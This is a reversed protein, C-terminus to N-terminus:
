YIHPPPQCAIKDGGERKWRKGWSGMEGEGRKRTKGGLRCSTGGGNGQNKGLDIDGEEEM